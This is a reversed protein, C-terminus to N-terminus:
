GQREIVRDLKFELSKDENSKGTLLDYFQDATIKFPIIEIGEKEKTKRSLTGSLKDGIVWVSNFEM